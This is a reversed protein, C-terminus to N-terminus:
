RYIEVFVENGERWQSITVPYECGDPQYGSVNLVVQMPFSELIAVDVTEIVTQSQFTPESEGPMAPAEQEVPPPPSTVSETIGFVSAGGCTALILLLLMLLAGNIMHEEQFSM